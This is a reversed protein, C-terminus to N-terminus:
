HEPHVSSDIYVATLIVFIYAQLFAVLVEFATIFVLMLLPLIAVPKLAIADSGVLEKTLVAFTVLLMHGALLNAFLRITLSFPRVLLTSVLEILGVLPKLAVPVGPPWILHLFYGAGQHKIGAGIFVFWVVMSLFLPIALRATAPMQFIPIVGPINTLFIFLFISLLFPTWGMGSRGVTPMIIQQQIFEVLVEAFNRVGTPPKLPDKRNALAFVITSVVVALVVILSIKNFGIAPILDRWRLLEAIPPFELALV